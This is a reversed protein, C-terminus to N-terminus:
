DFCIEFSDSFIDSAIRQVVTKDNFVITDNIGCRSMAHRVAYPSLVPEQNETEDVM